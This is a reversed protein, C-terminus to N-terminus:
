QGPNRMLCPVPAFRDENVIQKIQVAAKIEEEISLCCDEDAWIAIDEARCVLM